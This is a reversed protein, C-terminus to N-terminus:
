DRANNDKYMKVILYEKEEGNVTDIGDELIFGTKFTIDNSKLIAEDNIEVTHKRYKRAFTNKIKRM